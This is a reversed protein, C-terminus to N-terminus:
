QPPIGRSVSLAIARPPTSPETRPEHFHVHVAPAEPNENLHALATLFLEEGAPDLHITIHRGTPTFVETVKVTPGDGYAARAAEMEPDTAM